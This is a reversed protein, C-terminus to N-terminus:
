EADGLRRPRDPRALAEPPVLSVFVERRRCLGSALYWVAFGEISKEFQYGAALVLFGRM